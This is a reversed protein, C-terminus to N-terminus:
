GSRGVRGNTKLASPTVGHFTYRDSTKAALTTRM